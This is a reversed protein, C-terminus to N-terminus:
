FLGGNSKMRFRKFETCGKMGRKQLMRKINDESRLTIIEHQRKWEPKQSYGYIFSVGHLLARRSFSITMCSTLFNGMQKSFQLNMVANVVARWRDRDKALHIWDV